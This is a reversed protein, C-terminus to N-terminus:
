KILGARESSPQLELHKQYHYIAAAYDNLKTDYLWGLEFHAAASRPNTELAKEFESVAGSFDQSSALNRGREFHPDKQEDAHSDGPICGSGCVALLLPTLFCAMGRKRLM